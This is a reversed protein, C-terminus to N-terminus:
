ITSCLLLVTNLDNFVAVSGNLDNFVTAFGFRMYLIYKYFLLKKKNTINEYHTDDEGRMPM